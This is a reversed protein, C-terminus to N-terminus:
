SAVCSMDQNKKRNVVTVRSIKQWWGRWWDQEVAFQGGVRLTVKDTGKAKLQKLRARIKELTDDDALADAVARWEPKPDSAERLMELFCAHKAIINTDTPDEKVADLQKSFLAVVEATDILFQSRTQGGAIMEPQSLDPCKKFTQGKNKPDGVNGLEVVEVFRGSGDFVIAWKVQKAKFGPEAALDKDTAYKSLAHLM